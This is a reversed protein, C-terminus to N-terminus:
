LAQRAAKPAGRALVVPGSTQQEGISWGYGPGLPPLRLRSGGARSLSSSCTISPAIAPRSCRGCSYGVTSPISADYTAHSAPKSSSSRSPECTDWLLTNCVSFTKVAYSPVSEATLFNVTTEFGFGFGVAPCVGISHVYPPSTKSVFVAGTTPYRDTEVLLSPVHFMGEWPKACLFHESSVGASFSGATRLEGDDRFQFVIKDVKSASMLSFRFESFLQLEVERAAEAPLPAHAGSARRLVELADEESMEGIETCLGYHAPSIVTRQRTTVMVHFGTSAFANVVEASGVNDLVVLCRLDNEERVTSLHRVAEEKSEFRRPCGHPTDTLARAVDIALCELLRLLDKVGQGVTFWFMGPSFSARVRDDRVVSSAMLTKGGGGMGLLCHTATASRHPNTLDDVVRELLTTRQVYTPPLTPAGRPIEALQALRPPDSAIVMDRIENVGDLVEDLLDKLKREHNAATDRDQYNIVMKRWSYGSRNRYTKLTGVAELEEMFEVVIMPMSSVLDKAKAAELLCRSIVVCYGILGLIEARPAAAGQLAGLLRKMFAFVPALTIENAADIGKSRANLALFTEVAVDVGGASAQPWELGLTEYWPAEAKIRRAADALLQYSVVLVRFSPPRPDQQPM